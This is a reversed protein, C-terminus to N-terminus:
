RGTKSGCQVAIHSRRNCCSLHESVVYADEKDNSIFDKLVNMFLEAGGDNGVQARIDQRENMTWAMVEAGKRQVVNDKQFKKMQDLVIKPGGLEILRGRRSSANAFYLLSKIAYGSIDVDECGKLENLVISVDDKEEATDIKAKVVKRMKRTEELAKAKAQEVEDEHDDDAINLNM